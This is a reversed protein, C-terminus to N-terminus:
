HRPEADEILGLRRAIDVVREALLAEAAAEDLVTVPNGDWPGRGDNSMRGGAAVALGIREWVGPDVSGGQSWIGSLIYRFKASKSALREIASIVRPGHKVVMNETVGAAIYAADQLTECADMAALVLALLHEPHENEIEFACDAAWRTEAYLAEDIGEGAFARGSRVIDRAIKAYDLGAGDARRCPHGQEDFQCRYCEPLAEGTM